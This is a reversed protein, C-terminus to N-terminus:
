AFVASRMTVTSLVLSSYTFRFWAVLFQVTVVVHVLLTQILYGFIPASSVSLSLTLQILIGTASVKSLLIFALSTSSVRATSAM